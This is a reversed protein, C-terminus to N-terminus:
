ESLKFGYANEEQIDQIIMLDCIELLSQEIYGKSNVQIRPIPYIVYKNIFEESSALYEHVVNMHCNGHLVAIKKNYSDYYIFDRIEKM